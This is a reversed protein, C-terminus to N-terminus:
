FCGTFCGAVVMNLNLSTSVKLKFGYNRNVTAEAVEYCTTLDIRGDLVDLEEASSDAYYKLATLGLVFWHKKGQKVLWGKKM